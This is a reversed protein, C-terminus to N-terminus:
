SEESIIVNIWRTRIRGGVTTIKNFVKYKQGVTGAELWVKTTQPTNSPAPSSSITLGSAPSRTFVSTAITDSIPILWDQWDFQYDLKDATPKRFEDAM